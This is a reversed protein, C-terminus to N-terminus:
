WGSRRTVSYDCRDGSPPHTVALCRSTPLNTHGEEPQRENTVHHQQGNDALMIRSIMACGREVLPFVVANVISLFACIFLYVVHSQDLKYPALHEPQEWVIM